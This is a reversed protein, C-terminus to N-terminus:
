EQPKKGIPPVPKGTRFASPRRGGKLGLDEEEDSDDDGFLNGMPKKPGAPGGQKPAPM